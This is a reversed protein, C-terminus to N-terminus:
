IIEAGTRPSLILVELHGVRLLGLREVLVCRARGALDRLAYSDALLLASTAAISDRTSAAEETAPLSSSLYFSVSFLLMGIGAVGPWGLQRLQRNLARTISKM